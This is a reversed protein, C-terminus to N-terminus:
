AATTDDASAPYVTMVLSVGCGRGSPAQGERVTLNNEDYGFRSLLAARHRKEPMVALTAWNVGQLHTQLASKPVERCFKKRTQGEHGHPKASTAGARMKEVGRKSVSM